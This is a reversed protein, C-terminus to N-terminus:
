RSAPPLLCSHFATFSPEYVIGFLGPYLAAPTQRRRAHVLLGIGSMSTVLPLASRDQILWIPRVISRLSGSFLRFMRGWVKKKSEIEHSSSDPLRKEKEQKSCGSKVYRNSFVPAIKKVQSSYSRCRWAQSGIGFLGGATKKKEQLNSVRAGM